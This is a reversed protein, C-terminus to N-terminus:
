LAVVVFRAFGNESAMGLAAASGSIGV